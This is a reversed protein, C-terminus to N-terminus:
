MDNLCLIIDIMLCHSAFDHMSNNANRFNYLFFYLYIFIHLTLKTSFLFICRLTHRFVWCEEEQKVEIQPQRIEMVSSFIQSNPKRKIGGIKPFFCDEELWCLCLQLITSMAKFDPLFLPPLFTVTSRYHCCGQSMYVFKHVALWICRRKFYKAALAAWFKFLLM